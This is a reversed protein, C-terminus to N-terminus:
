KLARVALLSPRILEDRHEPLAALAEASPRPEDVVDLRLGAGTFANLVTSVTRHYKVVGEVFWTETRRGEEQYHDVPWAVHRGDEDIWRRKPLQATMMPHEVLAVFVGGADLWTVARRLLPEVDAVYNLALVSVILDCSRSPLEV